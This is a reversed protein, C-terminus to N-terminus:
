GPRRGNSPYHVFVISATTARTLREPISGLSRRFRKMPGLETVVILEQHTVQQSISRVAEGELSAVRYPQDLKRHKLAKSVTEINPPRVLALLPVNLAQAMTLALDFTHSVLATALKEQPIAVTVRELANVTATIRGVLVPVEAKWVVEDIVTGLISQRMSPRGRWGLVILSAELEVAARLIGRAQSTDVRRVL